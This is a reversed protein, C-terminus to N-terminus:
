PQRGPENEIQETQSIHFVYATRAFRGPRKIEEGTNPDHEGDTQIWTLVAVGHEGRKVQRGLAQWAHYTLVNDRPKIDAEAIGREMFAAYVTPLNTLAQSGRARDLAEQNMARREEPTRRRQTTTTPM